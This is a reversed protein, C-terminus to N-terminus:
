TFIDRRMVARIYPKCGCFIIGNSVRLTHKVRLFHREMQSCNLWKNTDIRHIIGQAITELATYKRINILVENSVDCEEVDNIVADELMSTDSKFRLRSLADAHPIASGAHYIIDFDFSQLLISWRIM